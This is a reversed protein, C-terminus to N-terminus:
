TRFSGHSIINQDKVDEVYDKVADSSITSGCRVRLIVQFTLAHRMSFVWQLSVFSLFAHCVLSMPVGM